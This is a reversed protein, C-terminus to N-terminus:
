NRGGPTTAALDSVFGSVLGDQVGANMRARIKKEALEVALVGAYRQLDMRAAKGASEIEREAYAQIKAREAERHQRLRETEAEREKQSDAKLQAIDAALNALKRDVAAARAEAEKRVEGAELMEKRIEKSRAAFFPGGNKAVMYIIAGALVIFNAWKWRILKAETEELKEETREVGQGRQDEAPKTEQAFAWPAAACTLGIALIWKALRRSM